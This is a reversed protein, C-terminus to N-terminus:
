VPCFPSAAPFEDYYDRWQMGIRYPAGTQSSVNGDPDCQAISLEKNDGDDCLFYYVGNHLRCGRIHRFVEKVAVVAKSYEPNARTTYCTQVSM